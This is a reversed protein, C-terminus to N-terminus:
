RGKHYYLMELPHAADRLKDPYEGAGHVRVGFGKLGAEHFRSVVYDAYQRAENAPVFDSPLSGPEKAFKESISKFSTGERDWIAEYAGLELLPSVAAPSSHSRALNLRDM